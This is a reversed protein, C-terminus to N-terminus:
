VRRPDVGLRHLEFVERLASTSKSAEERGAQMATQSPIQTTGEDKKTGSLKYDALAAEFDEDGMAAWREANATMYEDPFNAVEKVKDLREDRRAAQAAATEAATKEAELYTVLDSHDQKAKQAELVAADLQSQLEKVQADAEAKAEAIRTEVESQSAQVKFTELETQLNKVAEAVAADLEEQTFTRSMDGGNAPSGTGDSQAACLPCQESDHNAGAPKAAILADHLAKLEDMPSHM